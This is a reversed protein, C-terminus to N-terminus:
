KEPHLVSKYGVHQLIGSTVADCIHPSPMNFYGKSTVHCTNLLCVETSRPHGHADYDTGITEKMKTHPDSGLCFIQEGVILKNCGGCRFLPHLYYM